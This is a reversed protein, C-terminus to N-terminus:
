LDNHVYFLLLYGWECCEKPKNQNNTNYLCVTNAFILCSFYINDTCNLLFNVLNGFISNGGNEM